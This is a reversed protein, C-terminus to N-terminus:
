AGAARVWGMPAPGRRGPEGGDVTGVGEAVELTGRCGGQLIREGDGTGAELGRGEPMEAALRGEAPDERGRPGREGSPGGLLGRRRASRGVFTGPWSPGAPRAGAGGRGEGARGGRSAVRRLVAGVSRPLPAGTGWRGSAGERRGGAGGGGGARSDRPGGLTTGLAGARAAGGGGGGRDVAGGAM